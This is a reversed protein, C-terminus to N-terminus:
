VANVMAEKEESQSHSKSLTSLFTITTRTGNKDVKIVISKCCPSASFHNEYRTGCKFCETIVTENKEM